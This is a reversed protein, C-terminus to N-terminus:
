RHFLHGVRFLSKRLNFSLQFPTVDESHTDTDNFMMAACEFADSYGQAMLGGAVFM